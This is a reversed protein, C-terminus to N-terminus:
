RVGTSLNAKVRRLRARFQQLVPQLADFRVRNLLERPDDRENFLQETGDGENRIYVFDGDALSILPGRHAPSRGHNPNLPNPGELESIAGETIEFGAEPSSGRWLRTLSRGPFPSGTELDVLDVLTAPLDRLSVTERVVGQSRSRSPLVILLPVRIETRYLSEGHDFLDHEGLGEGHDSTIIVHTGGLVHRRKLEDFLEGLREDLYALCNDYCDRALARYHQPLKRKDLFTWRDFVVAYDDPTKPKFGFRYDAGDPLRYPTHADLYNLFAFFPRAPERRRSLWDVFQRNIAGADKRDGAFFWRYVFGRAAQSFSPDFRQSLEYLDKLIGDVLGATRLPGLKELAYDEYHTFGRDLGTDYSCYLANAVFGATAYGHSGLYEALTPSNGNLPTLWKVDLEHPWRGTFL